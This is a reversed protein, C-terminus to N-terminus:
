YEQWRNQIMITWRFTAEKLQYNYRCRCFPIEDRGSMKIALVFVYIQQTVAGNLTATLQLHILLSKLLGKSQEELYAPPLVSDQPESVRGPGAVPREELGGVVGLVQM